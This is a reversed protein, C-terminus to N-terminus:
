VKKYILYNQESSSSSPLYDPLILEIGAAFFVAVGSIKQM